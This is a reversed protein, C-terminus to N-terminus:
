ASAPLPPLIEMQQCLESPPLLVLFVTTQRISAPSANLQAHSVFLQELM